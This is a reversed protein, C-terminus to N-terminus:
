TSRLLTRRRDAFRSCSRRLNHPLMKQMQHMYQDLLFAILRSTNLKRGGSSPFESSPAEPSLSNFALWRAPLTSRGSFSGGPDSM